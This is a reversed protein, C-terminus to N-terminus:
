IFHLPSSIFHDLVKTPYICEKIHLIVFDALYPNLCLDFQSIDYRQTAVAVTM